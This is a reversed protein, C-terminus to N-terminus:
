KLNLKLITERSARCEADLKHLDCNASALEILRRNEEAKQQESLEIRTEGSEQWDIRM